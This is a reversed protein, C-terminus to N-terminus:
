RKFLILLIKMIKGYKEDERKVRAESAAKSAAEGITANKLPDMINEQFWSGIGYQKRGDVGMIGGYAAM